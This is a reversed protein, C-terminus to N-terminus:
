TLLPLLLTLGSRRPCLLGFQQSLLSQFFQFLCVRFRSQNVVGSMVSEKLVAVNLKGCMEACSPGRQAMGAHLGLQDRESTM